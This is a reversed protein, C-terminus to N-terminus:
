CNALDAVAFRVQTGDGLEYRSLLEAGATEWDAGPSFLRHAECRRRALEAGQRSAAYRGLILVEPRRDAPGQISVLAAYQGGEGGPAAAPAATRWSRNRRDQESRDLWIVRVQGDDGEEV